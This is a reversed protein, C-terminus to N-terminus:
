KEERTRTSMGTAAQRKGQGLDVLSAKVAEVIYDLNEYTMPPFLSVNFLQRLVKAAVPTHQAGYGLRQCHPWGWMPPYHSTM